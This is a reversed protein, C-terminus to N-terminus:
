EPSSFRDRESQIAHSSREILQNRIRELRTRVSADYLVDGVQVTMGGLLEPDVRADLAPDRGFAAQLEQTLRQRQDDALPVASRVQVRIKGARQECLDRLATAIARLADLRDHENVVLLFNLFLDDARGQFAARLAHAKRERGVARSTLFAELYRDRPLVETVVAEVDEVVAAAQGQKEAANLLAEAYARAVRQTADDFVTPHQPTENPNM